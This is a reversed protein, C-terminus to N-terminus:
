SYLITDLNGRDSDNLRMEQTTIRFVPNRGDMAQRVDDCNLMRQLDTKLQGLQITPETIEKRIASQTAPKEQEELRRIAEFIRPRNKNHREDDTGDQKESKRSQRFEELSTLSVDWTRGAQITGEDVIVATQGQHGASGGWKLLLDHHGPNDADHATLRNVLFFQRGWADFGAGSIDSMDPIQGAPMHKKFHGALIPTCGTEKRIRTLSNQLITGVTSINAQESAHLPIALYSPDVIVVAIDNEQIAEIMADVNLISRLQPIKEVDLRFRHNLDRFARDRSQTIRRVTEQITRGGSEGSLMWVNRPEPVAYRGLFPTGTAIAIGLDALLTTKLSKRPGGWIAPDGQVLVDEVLWNFPFEMADFEDAPMCDFYTSWHQKEAANPQRVATATVAGSYSAQYRGSDQRLLRGREGPASGADDLKHRLEHDDWPPLCNANWDRIAELSEDVSLDFANRLVCAVHFTANHGAEGSVAPPITALYRVARDVIESRPCNAVSNTLHYQTVVQKKVANEGYIEPFTEALVADAPQRKKTNENRLEGQAHTAEQRMRSM